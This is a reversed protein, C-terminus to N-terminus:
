VRRDIRTGARDQREKRQRVSQLVIINRSVVAIGRTSRATKLIEAISTLLVRERSSLRDDDTADRLKLEFEHVSMSEDLSILARGDPFRVLRVGPLNELAAVPRVVIVARDGYKSLEAPPLPVVDAVLPQVLRVVARSLDDDVARLAAIIDEPLTLTVARSPRGFKQPRGRGAPFLSMPVMTGSFIKKVNIACIAILEYFINPCPRIPVVGLSPARHTQPDRQDEKDQNRGTAELLRDLSRVDEIRRGSESFVVAGVEQAAASRDAELTKRKVLPQEAGHCGRASAEPRDQQGM